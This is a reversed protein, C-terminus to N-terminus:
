AGANAGRDPRPEAELTTKRDVASIGCDLALLTGARSGTVQLLIATM